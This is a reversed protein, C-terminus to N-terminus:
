QPCFMEQLLIITLFPTLKSMSKSLVTLIIHRIGTLILQNNTSLAICIHLGIFLVTQTQLSHNSPCLLLTFVRVTRIVNTIKLLGSPRRAAAARGAAESAWADGLLAAASPSGAAPRGPGPRRAASPVQEQEGEPNHSAETTWFSWNQIVPVTRCLWGTNRPTSRLYLELSRNRMHRTLHKTNKLYSQQKTHNRM